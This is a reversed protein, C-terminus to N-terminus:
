VTKLSFKQKRVDVTAISSYDIQIIAADDNRYRYLFLAFDVLFIAWKQYMVIWVDWSSFREGYYRNLVGCQSIM